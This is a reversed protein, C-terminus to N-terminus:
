RENLARILMLDEHRELAREVTIGRWVDSQIRRAPLSVMQKWNKPLEVEILQETLGAFEGDDPIDPLEVFRVTVGDEAYVEAGPYNGLRRLVVLVRQNRGIMQCARCKEELLESAMERLIARGETTGKIWARLGKVTRPLNTTRKMSGDTVRLPEMGRGKNKTAALEGQGNTHPLARRQQTGKSTGRPSQPSYPVFQAERRGSTQRNTQAKAKSAPSSLM